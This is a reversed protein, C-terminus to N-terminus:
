SWCCMLMKYMLECTVQYSGSAGTETLVFSANNIGNPMVQVAVPRNATVSQASQQGFNAMKLLCVICAIEQLKHM